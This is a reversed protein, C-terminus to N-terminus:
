SAPSCMLVIWRMQELNLDEVDVGAAPRHGSASRPISSKPKKWRCCCAAANWSLRTLEMPSYVRLSARKRPTGDTGAAAPLPCPQAAPSDAATLAREV